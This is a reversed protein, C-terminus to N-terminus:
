YVVSVGPCNEQIWQAKEETCYKATQPDIDGPMCDIIKVKPCILSQQDLFKFSSLIQNFVDRPVTTEGPDRSGAIHDTIEILWDAAADKKLITYESGGSAGWVRYRLARLNSGITVVRASESVCHGCWEDEMTGYGAHIKENIKQEVWEDVSLETKIIQIAIYPHHVLGERWKNHTITIGGTELETVFYDDRYMLEFGFEENRYASWIGTSILTPTPTPKAEIPSPQQTQSTRKQNILFFTSIVVSSLLLLVVSTWLIVKKKGKSQPTIKKQETPSQNKTEQTPPPTTESPQLTTQTAPPNIKSKDQM